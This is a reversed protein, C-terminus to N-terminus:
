EMKISHIIESVLTIDPMSALCKSIVTGGTCALHHITRIIRKNAQKLEEKQRKERATAYALISKVDINYNSHNKEKPIEFLCNLLELLDSEESIDNSNDLANLLTKTIQRNFAVKALCDQDESLDTYVKGSNYYPVLPELATLIVEFREEQDLETLSCIRIIASIALEKYGSRGLEIATALIHSKNESSAAVLKAGLYPNARVEKARAEAKIFIIAQIIWESNIRQLELISSHSPAEWLLHSNTNKHHLKLLELEDALIKSQDIWGAQSSCDRGKDISSSEEM